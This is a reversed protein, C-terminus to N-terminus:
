YEQSSANEVIRGSKRLMSVKKNDRKRIKITASNYECEKIVHKVGNEPM